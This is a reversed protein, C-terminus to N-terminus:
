YDENGLERTVNRNDMLQQLREQSNAVVAKDDAYRITNNIIGGVSIGPELSDIAERIM